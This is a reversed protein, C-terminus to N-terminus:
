ETFGEEDDSYMEFRNGVPKDSVAADGPFGRTVLSTCELRLLGIVESSTLNTPSGLTWHREAPPQEFNKGEEIDEKGDTDKRNTQEYAEQAGQHFGESVQTDYNNTAGKQWIEKLIHSVAYQKSFNFDKEYDNLVHKLIDLFVQGDAYEVMTINMFHKLGAWRSVNEQGYSKIEM